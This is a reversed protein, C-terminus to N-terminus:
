PLDLSYIPVDSCCCMANLIGYKMTLNRLSCFQSEVNNCLVNLFPCTLGVCKLFKYRAMDCMHVFDLENCYV